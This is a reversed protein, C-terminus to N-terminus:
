HLKLPQTTMTVQSLGLITPEFGIVNHCAMLKEVGSKLFILLAGGSLTLTPVTTLLLIEM